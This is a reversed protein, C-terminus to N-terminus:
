ISQYAEANGEYGRLAAASRQAATREAVGRAVARQTTMRESVGWAVSGALSLVAAAAAVLRVLRPRSSVPAPAREGWEDALVSLVREKLEAPPAEEHAARAFMLLGKDLSAVDRRCAACGRLHRRVKAAETEEATDLTLDPLLGLM